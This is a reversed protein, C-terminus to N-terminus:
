SFFVSCEKGQEHHVDSSLKGAPKLERIFYEQVIYLRKFIGSLCGAPEGGRVDDAAQKLYQLNLLKWLGRTMLRM